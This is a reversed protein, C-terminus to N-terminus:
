DSYDSSIPLVSSTVSVAESVGGEEGGRFGKTSELERM